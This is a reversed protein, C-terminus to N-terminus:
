DIQTFRFGRSNFWNKQHLNATNNNDIFWDIDCMKACYARFTFVANTNVPILLSKPGELIYM